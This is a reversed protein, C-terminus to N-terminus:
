IFDLSNRMEEVEIDFGQSWVLLIIYFKATSALVLGLHGELKGRVIIIGDGVNICHQRHIRTTRRNTICKIFGSPM